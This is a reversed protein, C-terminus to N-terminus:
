KQRKNGLVNCWGTKWRRMLVWLRGSLDLCFIGAFMALPVGNTDPM